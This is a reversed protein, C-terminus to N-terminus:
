EAKHRYFAMEITAHLEREEFPKVIYGFPETVRARNLTNQDSHSTLFVVPLDYERRLIDAADIGDMDGKLMIDMLVLDADMKPIQAIAEEASAIATPVLYGLAQLRDQLDAAVIGEDEVVIIKPSLM